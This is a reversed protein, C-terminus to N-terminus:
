TAFLMRAYALFVPCSARLGVPLYKLAMHFSQPIGQASSGRLESGEIYEHIGAADFAALFHQHAVSYTLRPIVVLTSITSQTHAHNLIQVFAQILSAQSQLRMTTQASRFSPTSRLPWCTCCQRMTCTGRACLGACSANCYQYTAALRPIGFSSSINRPSALKKSPSHEILCGPPATGTM